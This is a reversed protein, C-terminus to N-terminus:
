TDPPYTFVAEPQCLRDSLFAIGGIQRFFDYVQVANGARNEIVFQLRDSRDPDSSRRVPQLGLTKILDTIDDPFERQLNRPAQPILRLQIPM